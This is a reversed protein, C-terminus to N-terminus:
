KKQEIRTMRYVKQRAPRDAMAPWDLTATWENDGVRKFTFSNRANAVPVFTVSDETIESAAYSGNRIGGNHLEYRSVDTTKSFTEDEFSDVVLAKGDEIRYREFFPKDGDMGRWDGELWRLKALDEAKIDSRPTAQPQIAVATPSPSAAATNGQPASCAIGLSLSLVLLVVTHM